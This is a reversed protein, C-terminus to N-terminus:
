RGSMERSDKDSKLREAFEILETIREPNLVKCAELLDAEYTRRAEMPSNVRYGAARLLDEYPIDLAKGIKVLTKPLPPSIKDNELRSLYGKDVKLKGALENLTM